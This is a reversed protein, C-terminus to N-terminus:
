QAPITATAVVDIVTHEDCIKCAANGTTLTPRSRGKRNSIEAIVVSKTIIVVRMPLCPRTARVAKYKGRTLAAARLQRLSCMLGTTFILKNEIHRQETNCPVPECSLDQSRCHRHGVRIRNQFIGLSYNRLIETFITIKWRGKRCAYAPDYRPGCGYEGHAHIVPGLGMHGTSAKESLFNTTARGSFRFNHM